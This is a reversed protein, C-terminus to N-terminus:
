FGDARGARRSDALAMLRGTKPDRWSVQFSGMHWDHPPLPNVRVGLRALGALVEPALRSEVDVVYDDRLSLMRPAEVAAEPDMGHDLINSLVQPVTVHVNGPTGLSLWPRGDKLVITNGIPLRLRGGGSFWGAISAGMDAVAHSGVMPIGDVVVGPIGGSQLTNMMQVWNGQPDVISLECSGTVPSARGPAATPLGAAALAPNGATVRVHETLDAKPRSRRLVEAVQRHHDRSLWVDLPLGFLEPDHLYGLEWEAWRLAGAMYYLSDASGASPGLSTVELAELIGLVLASFVGTREPPALQLLEQGRHVYRLPEQWRPPIAQLQELKVPWGLRNGEAVFHRAWDGSIFYDPGEEALRRMTEAMAPNHFRDGVVPTFGGPMFFERGSPFYTNSPLESEFVGYQFSHVPFGDRSWRVAPECLQKWPRSGFREHLAKMAPMFGPICACPPTPGAALGGVAPMPRFPALGPVLTGSGNLQYGKGSKAEWYLFTVTGTHNTMEPQVVAQVLSGAIGADVANGGAKMVALMTETVIAHSSSAVARQGTAAPKPGTRPLADLAPTAGAPMAAAVGGLGAAAGSAAANQLFSRRNM